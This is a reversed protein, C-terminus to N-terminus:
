KKGPFAPKGGVTESVGVDSFTLDVKRTAVVAAIGPVNTSGLSGGHAPPIDSFHWYRVDVMVQEARDNYTRGIQRARQFGGTLAKAHSAVVVKWDSRSVGRIIIAGLLVVPHGTSDCSIAGSRLTAALFRL